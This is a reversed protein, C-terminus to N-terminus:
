LKLIIITPSIFKPKQYKIIPFRNITDMDLGQTRPLNVNITRRFLNSPQTRFIPKRILKRPQVVTEIINNSNNNNSINNSQVQQEDKSNSTNIIIRNNGHLSSFPVPNLESITNNPRSSHRNRCSKKRAELRARFRSILSFEDLDPSKNEIKPKFSESKDSDNPSTDNLKAFNDVMKFRKEVISKNQNNTEDNIFSIIQNTQGTEAEDQFLMPKNNKENQKEDKIVSFIRNSNVYKLSMIKPNYVFDSKNTMNDVSLNNVSNENINSNNNSSYLNKYNFVINNKSHNEIDIKPVFHMILRKKQLFEHKKFRKKLKEIDIKFILTYYSLSVLKQLYPKIFSVM